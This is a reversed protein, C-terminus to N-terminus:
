STTSSTHGASGSNERLLWNKGVRDYNEKLLQNTAVEKSWAFGIANGQLPFTGLEFVKEYMRLREKKEEPVDAEESSPEPNLTENLQVQKAGEKQAHQLLKDLEAQENPDRLLDPQAVPIECSDPQRHHHMHETQEEFDPKPKLTLPTAPAALPQGQLVKPCGVVGLSPFGTLSEPSRSSAKSCVSATTSIASVAPSAPEVTPLVRSGGRRGIYQLLGKKHHQRHEGDTGDSSDGMAEMTRKRKEAATSRKLAMAIDSAGAFQLLGGVSSCLSGARLTHHRM